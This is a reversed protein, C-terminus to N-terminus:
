GVEVPLTAAINEVISETTVGEAEGEFNLIIRHRLAPLAIERVDDAGPATRNDLLARCKAALELAQAARPSAGVRVFENVMPTAFQGGAYRGDRPHTALVMRVAYDRVHPAIAVRRVLQQYREIKAGDLVSAVEARAGTTTRQLIEALEARGSYGVLLKFFFRDLQAEPLPYTGEQEIPNQTAMVFFPSPLRHTTGGVTVSQEQMAELLASQTKPTARNIEDALVIQAFIPGPAFRFERRTRGDAESEHVVTTGTIDAPMLDPTFQVRAFDLSLARSLTRVLLTKGIGPVGELLAHGATFLCTLVGDVVPEHGVVAKGIEAKVRAYDSRFEAAAAEIQEPTAFQADWDPTTDPHPKTQPM